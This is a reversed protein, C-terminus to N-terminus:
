FIGNTLGEEYYLELEWPQGKQRSETKYSNYHLIIKHGFSYLVYFTRTGDNTDSKESGIYNQRKWPHHM